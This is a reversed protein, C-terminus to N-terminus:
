LHPASACTRVHLSASATPPKVKLRLPPLARGADDDKPTAEDKPMAADAPSDDADVPVGGAARMEAWGAAPRSAMHRGYVRSAAIEHTAHENKPSAAHPRLHPSLRPLVPQAALAAVAILTHERAVRTASNLPGSPPLPPPSRPLLARTPATNQFSPPTLPPISITFYSHLASQILGSM